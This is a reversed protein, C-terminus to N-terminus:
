CEERRYVEGALWARAEDMTAFLVHEWTGDHLDFHTIYMNTFGLLLQEEGVVVVHMSPNRKSSNADSAAAWRMVESSFDLSTVDTFDVLQYEMDAFRPDNFTDLNAQKLDHDTAVGSFHCVGGREEWILEYPM